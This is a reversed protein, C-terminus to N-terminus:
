EDDEGEASQAVAETLTLKFDAPLGKLWNAFADRACDREETSWKGFSKAVNSLTSLPGQMTTWSIQKKPKDETTTAGPIGALVAGLGHGIWIGPEHKERLTPLQEFCRFIKVAQDILTSSVGFRAALDDASVGVSHSNKRPRGEGNQCVQPHLTVALWALQGKTWHIRGVVTAKLLSKGVAETVCRVPVLEKPKGLAWETRHRGDWGKLSFCTEPDAVEPAVERGKADYCTVPLPDLVGNAELDAFQADLSAKLEEGKERLDAKPSALFFAAVASRMPSSALSEDFVILKPNIRKIENM